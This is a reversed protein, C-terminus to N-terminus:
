TKTTAVMKVYELSVDLGVIPGFTSLWTLLYNSPSTRANIHRSGSGFVPTNAMVQATHCPHIHYFPRALLPHEQQTVLGWKDGDESVHTKSILTWIDQLPLQKGSDFTVIFYLLPVEYSISYVIHYEFHVHIPTGISSSEMNPSPQLLVAPDHREEISHEFDHHRLQPALDGPAEGGDWLRTCKKVLFVTGGPEPTPQAGRLEWGDGLRESFVVFERACREFEEYSLTAVASGAMGHGRPYHFNAPHHKILVSLKAYNYVCLM